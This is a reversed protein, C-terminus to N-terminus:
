SGSCCTEELFLDFLATNVICSVTEVEVKMGFNDILLGTPLNFGWVNLFDLTRYLCSFESKFNLDKLKDSPVPLSAVCAARKTIFDALHLILEDSLM